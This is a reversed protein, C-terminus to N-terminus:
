RATCSPAPDDPCPDSSDEIGDLDRDLLRDAWSSGETSRRVRITSRQQAPRPVRVVPALDIQDIPLIRYALAVPELSAQTCAATLEAEASGLVVFNGKADVKGCTQEEIRALLVEQVAYMQSLDAGSSGAAALIDSCEATPKLALAPIAHHEPTEFRLKKVLSASAQIGVSGAKLRVGAHLQRVIETGTYASVEPVATFCDRLQLRHGTDTPSFVHGVQFAGSLEPTPTWGTRELLSALEPIESANAAPKLADLQQRVKGREGASSLAILVLLWPM